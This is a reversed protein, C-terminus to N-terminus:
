GAAWSGRSSRKDTELYSCYTSAIDAIVGRMISVCFEDEESTRRAHVLEQSSSDAREGWLYDVNFDM